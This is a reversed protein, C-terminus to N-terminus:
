KPGERGRRFFDALSAVGDLLRGSDCLCASAKIRVTQVTAPDM